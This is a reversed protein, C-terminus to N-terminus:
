SNSVTLNWQYDTSKSQNLNLSYIRYIKCNNLYLKVIEWNISFIVNYQYLYYMLNKFKCFFKKEFDLNLFSKYYWGFFRINVVACSLSQYQIMALTYLIMTQCINERCRVCNKKTWFYIYTNQDSLGDSFIFCSCFDASEIMM